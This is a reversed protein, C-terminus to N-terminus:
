AAALAILRDEFSCDLNTQRLGSQQYWEFTQRLGDQFPTPEFHLQEVAKGISMTIPPIDFYVGFYLPDAMFNGGEREIIERPVHAVKAPVGAAAALAHVLELQTVPRTNGVNFAEGVSSPEEVVRLCCTVLDQVHVFHMLRSGDGPVVIPRGLLLRDWFFAERYFPNRPGYIFPPRLTVVPLGRQQHLKFLARESQAKNRCYLDPCDDGALPNTETHDLGTFYAAVSSMFVYRQLREPGAALASARVQEATTGREWDYVNDFVVDFRQEALAAKMSEADNRDAQLNQIRPDLSHTDRRHLITVEHGQELLQASLREGIFLNGGIILVKM